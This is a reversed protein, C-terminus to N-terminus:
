IIAWANNTYDVIQMCNGNDLTQTTLSDITDSANGDVTIIGNNINKIYLRRGSGTASPLNVTMATAKNCIVVEIGSTVNYTDTQITLSSATSTVFGDTITILKGVSFFTTTTGLSLASPSATAGSNNGLYTGDPIPALNGIPISGPTGEVNLDVVPNDIGHKNELVETTMPQPIIIGNSTYEKKFQEQAEKKEM